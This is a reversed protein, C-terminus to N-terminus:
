FELKGRAREEMPLLCAYIFSNVPTAVGCEQGLRVVSGNQYDLESPLGNAIDRQMSATTAAPLSDIFRLINEEIGAPLNVDLAKGVATVEEIAMKLVERTEPVSRFAGVPAVTVSGVGSVSAIFIFKRWIEVQIDAPVEANVGAQQFANRLKYLREDAHGDPWNFAISPEIGVHRIVGPAAIMSSIRCLGGAAHQDGLAEAVQRVAEVGNQLPIVITEAGIMPRVAQAADPVQWAKVGLLIIDVPGVAEPSSVAQAPSITFDGKISEVRLGTTQLAKLHEGRAIFTVDEGAQALRGGFYGGVGGAGFVAIRM